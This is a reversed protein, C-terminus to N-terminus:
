FLNFYHVGNAGLYGKQGNMKIRYILFDHHGNFGKISFKREYRLDEFIPEVAPYPSLLDLMGVRDGHYMRLQWGHNYFEIKDYIFPLHEMGFNDVVGIKGNFCSVQLFQINSTVKIREKNPFFPKLAVPCNERIVTFSKYNEYDMSALAVPPQIEEFTVIDSKKIPVVEKNEFYFYSGNRKKFLEIYQVRKKGVVNAKAMNIKVIDTPQIKKKFFLFQDYTKKNNKKLYLFYSDNDAYYYSDYEIPVVLEYKAVDFVGYQGTKNKVLVTKHKNSYFEREIAYEKPIYFEGNSYLYNKGIETQIEASYRNKYNTKDYRKRFFDATIFQTPIKIEGLTDCWGWKGHDNYPILLLPDDASLDIEKNEQASLQLFFSLPLLFTTILKM